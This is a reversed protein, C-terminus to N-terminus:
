GKTDAKETAPFFGPIKAQCKPCQGNEITNSLTSFGLRKVLAAKCSPCYTNNAEHPSVNCLYAFKLGEDLAIKHCAELTPTPTKPLDKLKYQPVFREFHIPTNEGLTTKVWKCMEKMEAPSDNYGPVVLSVVELWKGSERITTLADLVPKLKAGIVKNYFKDNFGKLTVSFADIHKCWEKLPAPNIYAGTGMVVKVKNAAAHAAIDRAYEYFAVADTYTFAIASFKKSIAGEVADEKTVYHKDKIEDPRVQSQAFNQCYLCRLNCGAAAISLVQGGPSYHYFPLKEIPDPSLVCPNNYAHTYLVGDHNVRDRCFSVQDKELVCANPCINCQAKGGDLSESYQKDCKIQTVREGKAAPASTPAADAALLQRATGLASTAMAAGVACAGGRCLFGRRTLNSM